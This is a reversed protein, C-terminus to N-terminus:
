HLVPARVEKVAGFDNVYQLYVSAAETASIEPMFFENESYPSIAVVDPYVSEKDGRVFKLKNINIYYAGPNIAWM